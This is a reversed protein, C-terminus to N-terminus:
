KETPAKLEILFAGGGAAPDVSQLDTFALTPVELVSRGDVTDGPKIASEGSATVGSGVSAVLKVNSLGEVKLSVSFQTAFTVMRTDFHKFLKLLEEGNAAYFFMGGPESALKESLSRSFGRGVGVVTAYNKKTAETAVSKRLEDENLEGATVMADTVLVFRNQAALRNKGSEESRMKELIGYGLREAGGIDTLGRPSLTNIKQIVSELEEPKTIATQPVLMEVKDDFVFIAVRDDPRLKKVMEIAALKAGEMRTMSSGVADVTGMSGSIDIGVALNLPSRQYKEEDVLSTMSVQVLIKGTEPFYLCDGLAVALTKGDGEPVETLQLRFRKLFGDLNFDAVPPIVHGSVKDWFGKDTMVGGSTLAMGQGSGAAHAPSMPRGGAFSSSSHVGVPRPGGPYPIPIGGPRFKFHPHIPIVPAYKRPEEFATALAQLDVGLKYFQDQLASDFDRKERQHNRIARDLNEAYMRVAKGFLKEKPESKKEADKGSTGESPAFKEHHYLPVPSHWGAGLPSLLQFDDSPVEPEMKGSEWDSIFHQIARGANLAYLSARMEPSPKHGLLPIRVSGQEASGTSNVLYSYNLVIEPKPDEASAIQPVSSRLTFTIVALLAVARFIQKLM